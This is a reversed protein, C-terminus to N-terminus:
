SPWTTPSCQLSVSMGTLRAILFCSELMRVVLLSSAALILGARSIDSSFQMSYM